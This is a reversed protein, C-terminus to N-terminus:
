YLLHAWVWHIELVKLIIALEHVALVMSHILRSGSVTRFDGSALSEMRELLIAMDLDILVTVLKRM